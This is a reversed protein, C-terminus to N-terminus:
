KPENWELTCIDIVVLDKKAAPKRKYKPLILASNTSYSVPNLISPKQGLNAIVAKTFEETGVKEKSIGEKFIHYTNVGDELTKLWANKVKEAVEIEEFEIAAGATLIIELTTDMIAPGIGDGKAVAIKTM